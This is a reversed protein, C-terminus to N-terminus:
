EWFSYKFVGNKHEVNHSAHKAGMESIHIAVIITDNITGAFTSHSRTVHHKNMYLKM